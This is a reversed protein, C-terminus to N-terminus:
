QKWGASFWSNRCALVSLVNKCKKFFYVTWFNFLAINSKCFIRSRGSQPHNPWSNTVNQLSESIHTFCYQKPFINKFNPQKTSMASWVTLIRCLLQRSDFITTWKIAKKHWMVVNQWEFMCALFTETLFGKSKSFQKYLLIAHSVFIAERNEVKKFLM